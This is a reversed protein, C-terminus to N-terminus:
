HEGAGLRSILAGTPPAFPNNRSKTNIVTNEQERPDVYIYRVANFRVDAM